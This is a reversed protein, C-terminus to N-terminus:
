WGFEPMRSMRANSGSSDQGPGAGDGERMENGEEGETIRGRDGIDSPRAM